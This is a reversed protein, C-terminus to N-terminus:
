VRTQTPKFLASRIIVIARADHLHRYAHSSFTSTAPALALLHRSPPGAGPSCYRATNQGEIWRDPINEARHQLRDHAHVPDSAMWHDASCGPQKATRSSFNLCPLRSTVAGHPEGDPQSEEGCTGSTAETCSLERPRHHLTLRTSPPGYM